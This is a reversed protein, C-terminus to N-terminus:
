TTMPVFGTCRNCIRGIIYLYRSSRGNRWTVDPNTCYHQLSALSLCVCLCIRMVVICKADDVVWAFHLLHKPITSSLEQSYEELQLVHARCREHSPIVTPIHFDFNAVQADSSWQSTWRIKSTWTHVHAYHQSENKSAHLGLAITYALDFDIYCCKVVATEQWVSFRKGPAFLVLCDAKM